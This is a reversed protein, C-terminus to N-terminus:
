GSLALFGDNCRVIRGDDLRTILVSDPSAGFLTEVEHKAENLEAQSRQNLMMILGFTWLLAVLVADLFAAVNFPSPAYFDDVPTGALIRLARYVFVAGHVIFVAALFYASAACARQRGTLLAQASVFAVLALAGSILLGRVAFSNVGYLFYLLAAAFLASLGVLLRRWVQKGLFRLIGIYLFVTGAVLLLNQAFILFMPANPLGRLLMCAFSFIEVASWLLWWGVGPYSKNVRYQHAFVLVQIVHTLGLVFILTRIDLAM